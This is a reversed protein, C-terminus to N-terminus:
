QSALKGLIQQWIEDAIVQRDRNANVRVWGLEFGLEDHLLAIHEMKADDQEFRHVAEKAEKFREGHLLFSLDPVRLDENIKVLYDKPLGEAMGFAISTGSYMEALVIDNNELLSVLTPEFDRRNEANLDQLDQATRGKPNGGKTIAQIEPGTPELDYVPYKRRVLGLGQNRAMEEILDLQTTKGINNVGYLVVFIGKKKM